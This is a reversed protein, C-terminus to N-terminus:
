REVIKYQYYTVGRDRDLLYLRDRFIWIGDVFQSVPITGLLVGEPDFVELQFMDTTRLDTNGERKVTVGASSGSQSVRIVEEPKIQRRHTVVWIRGSDDVAIGKSCSNMKPATYRTMNATAEYKGKEMVKTEYNLPRDAKWVLKGEPSYKEIRNQYVFAVAVARDRGVAFYLSNGIQNTVSEGFDVPLCFESQVSEKEDIIKLLIKPEDPRPGPISERVLYRGKGILRLGSVYGKFFRITKIEKGDSALVLIRRRTDDLVYLRDESDVNLSRLSSFEGPGQGKRGLSALFKGDKDFKQLRYNAADAIYINGQGDEVIDGPTNFALNEDETDVDGIKRVLELAVKPTAAWVGGKVNHVIRVGDKIEITQPTLFVPLFLICILVNTGFTIYKVITMKFEM